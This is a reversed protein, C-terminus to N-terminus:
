CNKVPLNTSSCSHKFVSHILFLNYATMIAWHSFSHIESNTGRTAWSWNGCGCCNAHQCFYFGPLHSPIFRATMLNMSTIYNMNLLSHSELYNQFAVFSCPIMVISTQQNVVTTNYLYHICHEQLRIIVWGVKVCPPFAGHYLLINLGNRQNQLPCCFGQIPQNRQEYM